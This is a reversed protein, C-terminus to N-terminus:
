QCVYHAHKFDLILQALSVLNNVSAGNLGRALYDSGGRNIKVRGMQQVNNRRQAQTKM